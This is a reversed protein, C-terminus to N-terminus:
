YRGSATRRDTGIRALLARVAALAAPIAATAAPSLGIGEAVDPTRFGVVYAPPLTGGLRTTVSIAAV